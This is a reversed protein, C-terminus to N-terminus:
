KEDCQRKVEEYTKQTCLKAFESWNVVNIGHEELLEIGLTNRYTQAYFVKKVGRNILLKACAVCPATTVFLVSDNLPEVAKMMANVEAHICGCAGPKLSECQNADGAVGGNYGFCIVRTYTSDVFVAGVQLRICTSRSAVARSMHMFVDEITPRLWADYDNYYMVSAHEFEKMSRENLTRYTINNDRCYKKCANIRLLSDENSYGVLDELVRVGNFYKIDFVPKHVHSVGASDVWAIQERCFKWSKISADTDLELIRRIQSQNDYTVTAQHRSLYKGSNTKAHVCETVYKQQSEKCSESCHYPMRLMLSSTEDKVPHFHEGCEHCTNNKNM